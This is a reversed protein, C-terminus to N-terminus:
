AGLDQAHRSRAACVQSSFHSTTVIVPVRGAVHDLIARTLTEREADSLVFQECFNALIARGDSGADIMFDVCRKPSELDLEGTETFTTPVVPFVGRYRATAPASMRETAADTTSSDRKVSM